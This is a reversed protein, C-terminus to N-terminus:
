FVSFRYYFTSGDTEQLQCYLDDGGILKSKIECKESLNIDKFYKWGSESVINWNVTKGDDLTLVLQANDQGQIEQYNVKTVKSLHSESDLNFSDRSGFYYFDAKGNTGSKCAYLEEFGNNLKQPHPNKISRCERQIIEKLAKQVNKDEKSEIAKEQLNSLGSVQSVVKTVKRPVVRAIKNIVAPTSAGGGIGIAGLAWKWLLSM